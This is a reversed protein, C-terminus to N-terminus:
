KIGSPSGDTPEDLWEAIPKRDLEALATDIQRYTESAALQNAWLVVATRVSTRNDSQPFKRLLRNIYGRVTPETLGLEAAIAKNTWGYRLLRLLDWERKTIHIGDLIMVERM